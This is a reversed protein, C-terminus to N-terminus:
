KRIQFVMTALVTPHTSNGYLPHHWLPTVSGCSWTVLYLSEVHTLMGLSVGMVWPEGCSCLTSLLLSVFVTLWCSPRRCLKIIFYTWNVDGFLLLLIFYCSSTNLRTVMQCGSGLGVQATSLEELMGCIFVFVSSVVFGQWEPYLTTAWVPYYSINWRQASGYVPM